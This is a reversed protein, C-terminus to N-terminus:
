ATTHQTVYLILIDRTIAGNHLFQSQAALAGATVDTRAHKGWALVGLSYKRGPAGHLLRPPKKSQPLRHCSDSYKQLVRM